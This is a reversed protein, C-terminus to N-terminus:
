DTILLSFDIFNVIGDGNSGPAIDCVSENKLWDSALVAIDQLKARSRTTERTNGYSGMNIRGGNPWPEYNWTDSPSGADVCPSIKQLHFRRDSVTFLPNLGINGQGGLSGTLGQVCSYSM